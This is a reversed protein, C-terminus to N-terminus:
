ALLAGVATNVTVTFKMPAWMMTSLKVRGAPSDDSEDEPTGPPLTIERTKQIDYGKAMAIRNVIRGSQIWEKENPAVIHLNKALDDVFKRMLPSRAGRSLEALVVASCRVVLKLDLIEQKFRGSRLNDIYVSTDLIAVNAVSL